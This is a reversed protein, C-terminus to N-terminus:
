SARVTLAMTSTNTHRGTDTGTVKISGQGATGAAVKFTARYRGDALRTATVTVGARGPQTFTVKPAAALPEVTAATVTLTQGVAISTSSPTIVFATAWVPRVITQTGLSSAVTLRALYRGQPVLSGDARRGNWTWAHTGAVLSRGSWVQLIVNGSADVIALTTAATRVQKWSVVSTPKLADVDQPYFAGSWGLFGATRDVVVNTNVTRANGGADKVAVRFTYTGDAVKAGSATRGDWTGKWSTLNTVTWSRILTTGHYIAAKGSSPESGVWSLNTTDFTGDGNPSFIAAKAALAISPPTTDVTIAFARQSRNGAVDWVSLTVTYRGDAVRAGADNTGTWTWSTSAGTGALSRVVSGAGNAVALSWRSAGTAVIALKVSDRVGDANPSILSSSASASTIAPPVTDVTVAYAAIQAGTVPRASPASYTKTGATGVLQLVYRGDAVPTGGVKGNWDWSRAGAALAPVAVSGTLTGDTAYVNLTLGDLAVANTWRIRITDESGDGNPSFSRTAVAATAVGVGTGSGGAGFDLGVIGADVRTTNPARYATVYTATSSRAAIWVGREVFGVPGWEVIPQTVEYWAFGDANVPGSTIALITGKDITGLRTASTGPGSRYALGDNSVRAFGGPGIGLTTAYTNASAWPGVTGKTDRGRVRFAYGAGDKGLWVDSIAKTASLWAAWAGGNTSVQVDYSAITSPESATWGVVFGEDGAPSSIPRIGAQPTAKDVLFSDSFARYLEAHGGDYGLAWMGAGRLGYDSVMGLRLELSARDEYYVQRWSTVCGYTSTCNQRQYAVYPSLEVPDWRRGYQAVLDVVNEYNPTSSAGFKTGSQNPARVDSTTTSWARGYWPLGLIVRSAPVRATYARVTDTLDYDPGSLPDISGATGSGATRYDYGMVFIADAAGAGVSAELPYNGIYGTTDYTLQYGTRIRNLETRVAKLFLVFEDAYGSALPEFDLNIGDAGRDRVAAAAQRALNTRATASGLIAKQVNAQSTSWAFVSLTLVVRTGRQHAANIVSTMASSTWGGWGTTNTGDANKKQLNGNSTAGVSFYAITSLVDYNLKSSAGSVEWYPLFGYVQRRLGSAVAPDAVQTVEAPQVYSAGTATVAPDGGPADIPAPTADPAAPDPAPDATPAPDQKSTGAGIDTWRSGEPSAAMQRGTARGAPLATPAKGDVLWRDSARPRFGVSVLGGPQFDIRDQAHAMAEEYAISPQAAPADPAPPADGVAPGTSPRSSDITSVLSADLPQAAAQLLPGEHTRAVVASPAPLVSGALTALLAIALAAPARRHAVPSGSM